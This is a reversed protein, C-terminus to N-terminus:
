HKFRFLQFAKSLFRSSRWGSQPQPKVPKFTGITSPLSSLRGYGEDDTRDNYVFGVPNFPERAFFMEEEPSSEAFNEDAIALQLIAEARGADLAFAGAARYVYAKFDRHEMLTTAGTPFLQGRVTEFIDRRLHGYQVLDDLEQMLHSQRLLHQEQAGWRSDTGSSDARIVEMHLSTALKKCERDGYTASFVITELVTYPMTPVVVNVKSSSRATSVRASARSLPCGAKTPSTTSTATSIPEASTIGLAVSSPRYHKYPLTLPSVALDCDYSSVNCIQREFTEDLQSRRIDVIEPDVGRVMPAAAALAHEEIVELDDAYLGEELSPALRLIKEAETPLQMEPESASYQSRLSDIRIGGTPSVATHRLKPLPSPNEVRSATSAISPTKIGGQEMAERLKIMFSSVPRDVHSTESPSSFVDDDAKAYANYCFSTEVASVDRMSASPLKPSRPRLPAVHVAEGGSDEAGEVDELSMNRPVAIAGTEINEPISITLKPLFKSVPRLPAIQPPEDSISSSLREDEEVMLHETSSSHFGSRLVGNSAPGAVSRRDRRLTKKVVSKTRCYAGHEKRRELTEPSISARPSFLSKARLAFSRPSLLTDSSSNEKSSLAPSETEVRGLRGLVRSSAVEFQKRSIYLHPGNDEFEVATCGSSRSWRDGETTATGQRSETTIPPSSM